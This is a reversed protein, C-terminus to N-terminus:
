PRVYIRRWHLLCALATWALVSVVVFSAAPQGRVAVAEAITEAWSTGARPGTTPGTMLLTLLLVHSGFYVLLSNRGLAVLPYTLVGAVASRTHRDLAFHLLFLVLVVGVGILLSFPATWLRKMPVVFQLCVWGAGALTGLVGVGAIVGRRSALPTRRDTLLHGATAGAAASVLAGLIAVVGEPDYGVTGRGYSHTLGVIAHDIPGSPNCDPSLVGGPCGGAYGHLWATHVAALGLTILLWLWWRKAVLHLGAMVLVVVAYLQLVGTVRLQGVDIGGAVMLDTHANYLLGVVLLIVARRLTPGLPVRRRYALSLGCGTLTVFIPFVLDVPHVGEWRAHEFWAPATWWANVAVSCVLMLGRAVDLSVIRSTSRGRDADADAHVAGAPTTRTTNSITTNSM